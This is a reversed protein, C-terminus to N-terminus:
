CRHDSREHPPPHQPPPPARKRGAHAIVQSAIDSQKFVDEESLRLQAEEDSEWPVIPAPENWAVYIVVCDRFYPPLSDPKIFGAIGLDKHWSRIKPPRAIWLYVSREVSTGYLTTGLPFAPLCAAQEYLLFRKLILRKTSAIICDRHLGYALGYDLSFVPLSFPKAPTSVKPTVLSDKVNTRAVWHTCIRDPDDKALELWQHFLPHQLYSLENSLGPAMADLASSFGETGLDPVFIQGMPLGHFPSLPLLKPMVCLQTNDDTHAGDGDFDLADVPLSSCISNANNMVTSWSIHNTIGSFWSVSGVACADLGSFCWVDHGPLERYEQWTRHGTSPIVRTGAAITGALITLDTEVAGPFGGPQLKFEPHGSEPWVALCSVPQADVTTTPAGIVTVVPDSWIGEADASSM